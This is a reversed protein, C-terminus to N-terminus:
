YFRLIIYNNSASTVNVDIASVASKSLLQINDSSEVIDMKKGVLHDPLEISDLGAKHYDAYLYYDDGNKVIYSCTRNSVRKNINRYGIVNFYDGANLTVDGKDVGSMYVKGNNNSLQLAKVTVLNRRVDLSASDISLFGTAFAYNDTLQIVRDALIGTEICRDLTLNVRGTWSSTDSSDINAYDFDKGFENFSLSKPIYYKVDGDNNLCRVAQLFMIDKLQINSELALFSSYITCQGDKDFVYRLQIRLSGKKAGGTLAAIMNDKSIIDYSEAVVFTNDYTYDGTMAVERGDVLCKTVHNTIPPYWQVSGRVASTTFASTNSGGSKHAYTGSPATTTNLNKFTVHLQTASVIEVIVFEDSGNTYVAGVDATSKGHAASTTVLSMFYGHNAGITTGFTRYPAVDDTMERLVVDNIIDKTFNFVTSATSTESKRIVFHRELTSDNNNCKVISTGGIGTLTVRAKGKNDEHNEQARYKDILTKITNQQSVKRLESWINIPQSDIFLAFGTAYRNATAPAIASGLWLKNAQKNIFGHLWVLYLKEGIKEVGRDIREINSVTGANDSMIDAGIIPNIDASNEAYVIFYGAAYKNLLDSQKYGVFENGMRWKVASTYGRAALEGQTVDVVVSSSRLEPNESGGDFGGFKIVNPQYNFYLSETNRKNIDTAAYPADYKINDLLMPSESCAYFLSTIFSNQSNQMTAKGIHMFRASGDAPIKVTTAFCCIKDTIQKKMNVYPLTFINATSKDALFSCNNDSGFNGNESYVIASMTVYKGYFETPIVLEVLITSKYNQSDPVKVGYRCGMSLLEPQTVAVLEGKAIVGTKLVPAIGNNFGGDDFMNSLKIPAILSTVGEKSPYDTLEKAVGQENKYYIFSYNSIAPQWVRFYDGSSTAAVGEEKTDFTNADIGADAAAAEARQASEESSLAYDSAQQIYSATNVEINEAAERALNAQEVAQAAAKITPGASTAAAELGKITLRDNGLRDKTTTDNSNVLYDLTIANDNIDKPSASGPPNNTNYKTM